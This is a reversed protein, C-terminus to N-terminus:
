NGRLQREMQEYIIEYNSICHGDIIQQTKWSILTVIIKNKNSNQLYKGYRKFNQLNNIWIM